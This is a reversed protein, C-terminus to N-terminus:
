EWKGNHVTDTGTTEYNTKIAYTGTTEQSNTLAWMNVKSFKLKLATIVPVDTKGTWTAEYPVSLWEQM